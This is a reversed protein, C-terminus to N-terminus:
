LNVQRLAKSLIKLDDELGVTVRIFRDLPPLGPKRIFVGEKRLENVFAEAREKTGADGLVFNTSSKLPFLNHKELVIELDYKGMRNLDKVRRIHDQDKLSALAGAQAIINVEFHPRIRNLPQLTEHQGMAYAIRTGAMGYAKSFTRLQIVRPDSFTSPEAFEIYAEDLIVLVDSALQDLFSQIAEQSQFTGSPNDPNAVYVAKAGAKKVLDALGALDLALDRYPVEVLTAGVVNVFYNFTPYSGLTTVVKDEPELYASAIHSFLGDIGPGVVFNDITLKHQAALESRLEHSLPDGYWQPSQAAKVMAEIALPSPGFVSENAGLRSLFKQGLQREFEEPATFPVADPLQAVLRNPTPRLM